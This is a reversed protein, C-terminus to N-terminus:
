KQIKKITKKKKKLKNESEHEFLTHIQFNLLKKKNKDFSQVKLQKIHM